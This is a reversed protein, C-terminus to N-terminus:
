KPNGLSVESLAFSVTVETLVNEKREEKDQRRIM